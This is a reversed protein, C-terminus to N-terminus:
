RRATMAFTIAAELDFFRGLTELKGGTESYRV